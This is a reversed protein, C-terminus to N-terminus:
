IRQAEKKQKRALQKYWLQTSIFIFIISMSIIILKRELRKYKEWLANKEKKEIIKKKKIRRFIKNIDDESFGRKLLQNVLIQLKNKKKLSEELEKKYAAQYWFKAEDIDFNEDDDVVGLIYSALEDPTLESTSDQEDKDKINKTKDNHKKM